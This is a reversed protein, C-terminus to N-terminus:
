APEPTGGAVRAPPFLDSVACRFGPLVDEGDLEQGEGLLVITGDARCAFVRRSVPEVVWVLRVGARLYRKLRVAVDRFLENSPVVEVALDSAVGLYGVDLAAPALRAAAIFSAVLEFHEDDVMALLDDPTLPVREALASM